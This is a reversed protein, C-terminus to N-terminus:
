GFTFWEGPQRIDARIGYASTRVQLREIPHRTEEYSVAKNLSGYHIPTVSAAHIIHAAVAAEEPTMTAEIPSPPQLHPWACVPANIPLFAM